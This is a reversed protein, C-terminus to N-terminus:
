RWRSVGDSDNCVTLCRLRYWVGPAAAAAEAESPVKQVLLIVHWLTQVVLQGHPLMVLLSDLVV